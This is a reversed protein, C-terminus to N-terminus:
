PQIFLARKQNPLSYDFGCSMFMEDSSSIAMMENVKEDRAREICRLVLARGVGRRRFSSDVALCQLEALKKSYIELACFGVIKKEAVARFSHKLLLELEISTRPLLSLGDMFPLLFQQVDAFDDHTAPVIQFGSEEM